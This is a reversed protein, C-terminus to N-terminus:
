ICDGQTVGGIGKIVAKANGSRERPPPGVRIRSHYREHRDSRKEHILTGVENQRRSATSPPAVM